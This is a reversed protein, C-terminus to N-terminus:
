CCNTVFPLFPSLKKFLYCYINIKSIIHSIHSNLTMNNDIYFGLLKVTNCPSINCNLFHIDPITQKNFFYIIQTKEMNLLLNLSSFYKHCLNLQSNIM